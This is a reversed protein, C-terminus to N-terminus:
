QAEPLNEIPPLTKLFTAIALRDADTLKSTGRDVTGKMGAHSETGDEYIGTALFAAIEDESWAGLGTLEDPTLNPAVTDRFPAGALPMDWNASGDENKPTHCNGCRVLTALYRGRDAGETPAEAPPAQQVEFPPPEFNLARVPIENEVPELTRLYAVLDMADKDAMTSFAPMIFLNRGDIGKGFRIADAIQQDSASALASGEHSTLNVATVAGYDGEFTNGGALAGLDRNFHCGCGTTANFIYAGAEADGMVTTEEEAPATAEAVAEEEAPVTADAAPADAPQLPQCAGLILVGVVAIMILWLWKSRRLRVSERKSCQESM